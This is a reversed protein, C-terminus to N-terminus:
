PQLQLEFKEIGVSAGIGEVGSVSVPQLSFSDAGGGVLVKAGAGAGIAVDAGVGAYTGALANPSYADKSPALVAWVITFDEKISLDVGVKSIQGSYSQDDGEVPDFTCGFTQETYVILNTVDQVKCTLVGIETDNAALATTASLGALLAAATMAKLM